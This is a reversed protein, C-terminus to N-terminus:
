FNFVASEARVPRSPSPSPSQRRNIKASLPRSISAIVSSFWVDLARAFREVARRQPRRPGVRETWWRDTACPRAESLSGTRSRAFHADACDVFRALVKPRDIKFELSLAGDDQIGVIQFEPVSGLAHCGAEASALAVPTQEHLAIKIKVNKGVSAGDLSRNGGNGTGSRRSIPAM